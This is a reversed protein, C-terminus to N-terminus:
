GLDRGQRRMQLWVLILLTREADPLYREEKLLDNVRQRPLGLLRGLRAKDGYRTLQGRVAHRLENWLPTEPGPKLTDGRRPRRSRRYRQMSERVSRSAAEMLAIALEVPIELQPAFRPPINPASM